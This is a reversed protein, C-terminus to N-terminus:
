TKCSAPEDVAAPLEVWFRSGNTGDSDVGVRGGMREAAKRAIALGVGTGDYHLNPHVREFLGFLRSHFKLPIGIGNDEVWLRVMDARQEAWVRVKPSVGPAVFKAANSLLNSVIQTLLPKHGMVDPLPEIQINPRPEPMLASTDVVEGVLATLSIREPHMETRAVRSFTLIDLIMRDLLQANDSIRKLCHVAEAPLCASYDELLAASYVSMGRLPTRLDHSVTYSFEEMQAAANQLSVTREQVRKELYENVKALQERAVRLEREVRKRETIDRAIKSVGTVRGNADKIPSVTLSIDLLSGDKRQRVTEYHDIREGKRIRDLIVPEESHRNVPILILVSKGVAEAATYGFLRQAGTNWSTIVGNLDKSIIADDSSEVIAAMHRSAAETRKQETVDRTFCQLRVLGGSEWLASADLLVNRISGDKCKLRAPRGHVKEGRNLRALIEELCGPDAHFEVLHHGIYEQPAYGLLSLEATNAWQIIGEPSARHLGVAANDFFSGLEEKTRRLRRELRKHAEIKLHLASIKEPLTAVGRLRSARDVAPPCSGVSSSVKGTTTEAPVIRAASQSPFEDNESQWEHCAAREAEARRADSASQTGSHEGSSKM